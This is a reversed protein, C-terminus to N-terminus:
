FGFRTVVVQRGGPLTLTGKTASEFQFSVPGVNANVLANPKYAGTLTQGNAFQSWSGQFAQPGSMANGTVYWLPNGSADYMYGAIFAQNNLFEMFYGRGSETTSWWWGNEPAFAPPPNTTAAAIAFRTIPISGGPWVLTGNRSDTFSVTVTGLSTPAAPAQYAGTLTQGGSFNLMSANFFSGDLSAQGISATWTARGSADYLYGAMFMRNDRAEISFGRGPENANWWWGTEPAQPQCTASGPVTVVSRNIGNNIM